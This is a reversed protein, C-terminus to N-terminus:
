FGKNTRTDWGAKVVPGAGGKADTAHYEIEIKGFSLSIEESPTKGAAGSQTISHITVDTLTYKAVQGGTAQHEMTLVASKIHQGSACSLFLKPSAKGLRKTIVMEKFQTRGAGRGAGTASEGSGIAGFSFSLVDFEQPHKAATSDGQVGDLKLFLTFNGAPPAGASSRQPELNVLLVAALASALLVRTRM